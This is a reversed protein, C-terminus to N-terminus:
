ESDRPAQDGPSFLEELLTGSDEPLDGRWGKQRGQPADSQVAAERDSCFEVLASGLAPPSM